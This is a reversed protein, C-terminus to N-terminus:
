SVQRRTSSLKAKCEIQGLGQTSTHHFIMTGLPTLVAGYVMVMWYSFPLMAYFMEANRQCDPPQRPLVGAFCSFILCCPTRTEDMDIESTAVWASSTAQILSTRWAQASSCVVALSM